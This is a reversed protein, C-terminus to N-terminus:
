ERDVTDGTITVAEIVGYVSSDRAFVGLLRRRLRRSSSPFMAFGTVSLSDDHERELSAPTAALQAARWSAYDTPAGRVRSLNAWAGDSRVGISGANYMPGAMIPSTRM